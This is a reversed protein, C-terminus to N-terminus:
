ITCESSYGSGRGRERWLLPTCVCAVAFKCIFRAPVVEVVCGVRCVITCGLRRYMWAGVCLWYICCFCVVYMCVYMGGAHDKGEGGGKEAGLPEEAVRDPGQLCFVVCCVCPLCRCFSCPFSLFVSSLSLWSHIVFCLLAFCFVVGCWWWFGFWWQVAWTLPAAVAEIIFCQGSLVPCPSKEEPTVLLEVWCLKLAPLSLALCTYKYMVDTNNGYTWLCGSWSRAGWEENEM